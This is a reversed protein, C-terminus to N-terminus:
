DLLRLRGFGFFTLQTKSRELRGAVFFGSLAIFMPIIARSFPRLPGAWLESDDGYTTVVSHGIVVSVALGLRLYDFGSPRGNTSNLREALTVPSLDNEPKMSRAEGQEPCASIWAPSITVHSNREPVERSYWHPLAIERVRGGVSRM